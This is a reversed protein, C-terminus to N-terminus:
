ASQQRWPSGSKLMANLIVILKRMCATIAVKAHKGQTRLNRYHKAIVPNHQIASIASMYLATRVHKRGGKITRKGRYQGSDQNMPAGGALSAIQKPNLQGLEPLDALLTHALVPGIGPVSLLVMQKSQWTANACILAELQTQVLRIQLTLCELVQAISQQLPVPMIHRHNKEMRVMDLLQRRRAILDKIQRTTEDSLSRCPPQVAEAFHAIVAADLRDTKALLGLAYAFRRVKVTSIIVIPLQAAQCAQVFADQYRGTSEVVIRQPNHTQIFAIAQQIGLSDNSVSMEHGGPRVHIDLHSKAVDVGVNAPAPNQKKM